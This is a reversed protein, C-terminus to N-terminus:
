KTNIQRAVEEAEKEKGQPIPIRVNATGRQGRNPYSYEIEM